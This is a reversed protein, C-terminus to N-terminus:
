TCRALRGTAIASPTKPRIAARATRSIPPSVMARRSQASLASTSMRRASPASETLAVASAVSPRSPATTSPARSAAATARSIEGKVSSPGIRSTSGDGPKLASQVTSPVPTATMTSASPRSVMTSAKRRARREPERPWSGTTRSEATTVAAELAPSASGARTPTRKASWRPRPRVETGTRETSTPETSATSTTVAVTVKAL